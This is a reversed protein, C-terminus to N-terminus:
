VASNSGMSPARWQIWYNSSENLFKMDMCKPIVPELKENEAVIQSYVWLGNELSFENINDCYNEASTKSNYLSASIHSIKNDKGYLTLVIITENNM